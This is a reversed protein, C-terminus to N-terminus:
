YKFKSPNLLKIKDDRNYYIGTWNVILIIQLLINIEIANESSNGSVIMTTSFLIVLMKILASLADKKRKVVFHIVESILIAIFIFKYVGNGLKMYSQLLQESKSKVQRNTDNKIINMNKSAFNKFNEKFDNTKIITKTITSVLKSSNGYEGKKNLNLVNNLTNGINYKGTSRDLTEKFNANLMEERAEKQSIVSFLRTYNRSTYFSYDKHLIINSFINLVISSIIMTIFITIMSLLIKKVRISKIKSIKAKNALTAKNIKSKSMRIKIFDTEDIFFNLIIIALLWMILSTNIYVSALAFLGMLVSYILYTIKNKKAKKVERIILVLLLIAGMVLCANLYEISIVTSYYMYKPYLIFLITSATTVAENSVILKLIKRFTYMIVIFLLTNIIYVTISASNFINNVKEIMHYWTDYSPILKILDVHLTSLQELKLTSDLFLIGFISRSVITLLLLYLIEFIKQKNNTINKKKLLKRIYLYGWVCIAMTLVVVITVIANSKYEQPYKGFMTQVLIGILILLTFIVSIVNKLTKPLTM